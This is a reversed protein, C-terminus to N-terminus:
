SHVVGPISNITEFYFRCLRQFIEGQRRRLAERLCARREKGEPDSARHAPPWLPTIGGKPIKKRGPAPLPLTPPIKYILTTVIILSKIFRLLHSLMLVPSLNLGLIM